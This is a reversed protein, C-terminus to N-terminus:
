FLHMFDPPISTSMKRTAEIRSGAVAGTEIAGDPFVAHQTDRSTQLALPDKRDAWASVGSSSSHTQLGDGRSNASSKSSPVDEKTAYRNGM